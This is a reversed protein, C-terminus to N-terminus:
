EASLLEAFSSICYDPHEAELQEPSYIGTAVAIVKLGNAHAADVDAPTDGVACIRAEPGAVALTLSLANRFVERRYEFDDSYGHVAFYGSLGCCELKLRGVAELNGTAIALVAGRARLHDLVKLVSPLVTISLEQEREKVFRGMASRAEPLRPRWLAEPVNALTLADRLIGNDTNGHATIGELGISRGALTELADCFALYHTADACQLLTGDIDFLYADFEDWGLACEKFTPM